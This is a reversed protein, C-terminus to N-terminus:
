ASGLTYRIEISDMLYFSYITRFGNIELLTVNTSKVTTEM